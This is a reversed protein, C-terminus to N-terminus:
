KSTSQNMSKSLTVPKVPGQERERVVHVTFPNADCTSKIGIAIHTKGDALFQADVGIHAQFVGGVGLQTCAATNSLILLDTGDQDKPIIRAWAGAMTAAQWKAMVATSTNNTADNFMAVFAEMAVTAAAAASACAFQNAAATATAGTYVATGVTLAVPVASTLTAFHVRGERLKMSTSIGATADKGVLATASAMASAGGGTSDSAQLVRVTYQQHETAGLAGTSPLQVLGSILFDARRFGKMSYYPTFQETTAGTSFLGIHVAHREQFEM